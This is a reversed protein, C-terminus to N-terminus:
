FYVLGNAHLFAASRKGANLVELVKASIVATEKILPNQESDYLDTSIKAEEAQVAKFQSNDLIWHVSIAGIYLLFIDILGDTIMFGLAAINLISYAQVCLASKKDTLTSVEGLVSHMPTLLVESFSKLRKNKAYAFSAFGIIILM